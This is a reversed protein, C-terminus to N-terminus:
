EDLISNALKRIVPIAAILTAQEAEDLSEEVATHLLLRAAQIEKELTQEGAPTITIWVKRRDSADPTRTVNGLAELDRVGLSAGQNSVQIATALESITAPGHEKLHRLIGVKGQSLTREARLRDMVPRLADLFEIAPSSDHPSDAPM